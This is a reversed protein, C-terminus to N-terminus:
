SFRYGETKQVIEDVVDEAITREGTLHAIIASSDAPGLRDLAIHHWNPQLARTSLRTSVIILAHLNVTPRTLIELLEESTPDLWHADEVILLLPAQESLMSFHWILAEFIRQKQEEPTAVHVDAPLSLLLAIWQAHSEFSAGAQALLARLKRLRADVHDEPVFGASRALHESFPYLSSNARDPSCVLQIPSVKHLRECFEKILRSKGIGPEGSIVM